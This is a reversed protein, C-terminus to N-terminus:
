IGMNVHIAIQRPLHRLLASRRFKLVAVLDLDIGEYRIDIFFKIATPQHHRVVHLRLRLLPLVCALETSCVFRRAIHWCQTAVENFREKQIEVGLSFDYRDHIGPSEFAAAWVYDRTDRSLAPLAKAARQLTSAKLGAFLFRDFAPESFGRPNEDAELRSM